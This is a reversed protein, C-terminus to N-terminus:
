PAAFAGIAAPRQHCRNDFDPPLPFDLARAAGILPSAALPRYDGGPRDVLTPERQVLSGSETPIGSGLTPGSWTAQDTAFWANSGFTFTEPSTNAGVNVYTSLDAVALVILNNLFLGNRSRVFRPDTNEQLIRAVWRRPEIVTNHAFM